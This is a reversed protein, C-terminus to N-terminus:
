NSRFPQLPVATIGLLCLYYSLNGLDSSEEELEDSLGRYVHRGGFVMFGSRGVVSRRRGIWQVQLTM